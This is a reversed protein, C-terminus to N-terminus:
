GPPADDPEVEEFIAMETRYSRGCACDFELPFEEVRTWCKCGECFIGISGGTLSMRAVAKGTGTLRHVLLQRLGENREPRRSRPSIQMSLQFDREPMRGPLGENLNM